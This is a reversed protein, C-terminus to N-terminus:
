LEDKKKPSKALFASAKKCYDTFDECLEQTSKGSEDEKQFYEMLDDELTEVLKECTFKIDKGKKTPDSGTKVADDVLAKFDVEGSMVGDMTVIRKMRKKGDVKTEVYDSSLKECVGDLLESVHTESRAYKKEVTRIKGNPDVRYSGVQITKAPDIGKIGHNVEDLIAKCIDCNLMFKKKAKKAELLHLSSCVLMLLFLKKMM